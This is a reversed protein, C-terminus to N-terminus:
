QQLIIQGLKFSSIASALSAITNQMNSQSSIFLDHVMNMNEPLGMIQRRVDVM